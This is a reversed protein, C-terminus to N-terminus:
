LFIPGDLYKWVCDVLGVIGGFPSGDRDNACVDVVGIMCDVLGVIISVLLGTLGITQAFSWGIWYNVCVSYLIYYKAWGVLWDVVVIVPM